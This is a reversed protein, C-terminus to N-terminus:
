VKLCDELSLSGQAGIATMNELRADALGWSELESSSLGDEESDFSDFEDEEVLQTYAEDEGPALLNCMADECAAPMEAGHVLEEGNNVDAVQTDVSSECDSSNERPRSYFNNMSSQRSLACRPSDLHAVMKAEIRGSAGRTGERLGSAAARVGKAPHSVHSASCARVDSIREKTENPVGVSRQSQCQQDRYPWKQVGLKRCARKLATACVGLANCAKHLPMHFVTELIEMTVVVGEKRGHKKHQGQKRRPFIVNSSDQGSSAESQSQEAAEPAVVPVSIASRPAAHPKATWGKSPPSGRQCEMDHCEMDMDSKGRVRNALTSPALPRSLHSLAAFPSISPIFDAPSGPGAEAEASFTSSSSGSSSGSSSISDDDDQDEDDEDEACMVAPDAQHDHARRADQIFAEAEKLDKLKHYEVVLTDHACLGDARSPQLTRRPAADPAEPARTKAPEVDEEMPLLSAEVKLESREDLLSSAGRGVRSGHVIETLTGHLPPLLDLLAPAILM